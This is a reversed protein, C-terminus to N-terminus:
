QGIEDPKKEKLRKKLEERAIEVLEASLTEGSKIEGSHEIKDAAKGMFQDAVYTPPLSNIIEHWKRSIEEDFMARREEKLLTAKNKHGKKYGPHGKQFPM